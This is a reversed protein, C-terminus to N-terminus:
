RLMSQVRRLWGRIEDAGNRAELYPVTLLPVVREAIARKTKKSRFGATQIDAEVDSDDTVAVRVGLGAEIIDPHLYNELERKATTVGWSGDQRASVEAAAAQYEPKDGDYIHVEPRHLARLYQMNVWDRLTSGGLPLMAIRPDAGLSPLSPDAEALVASARNLFLVDTPGEVCVFVQVQPSWPDPLVGLDHAVRQLVSPGGTVTRGSGSISQEVHRVASVPLLGALAPVHTTLVVQTGVTQSLERLAELVLLQNIPHQSTEPEEVAFVIDSVDQATRRREVEAQFFGLLILRRVGSGRKNIPIDHDGTFSLKFLSDWRPESRFRPALTSALNPDITAVHAVTRTAVALAEEEIRTKIAALEDAVTALANKVAVKLPDQVEADDDTSARDSRFLAYLPLHRGIATWIEKGGEKSLPVARVQLNLDGVSARVARRMDVNSRMDAELDRENVLRKLEPQKLTLLDAAPEATPHLAIAHVDEKLRDGTYTKRIQLHGDPDLLFEAALTTNASDDLVLSDPLDTFICTIAVVEHDQAHVCRDTPDIKCLDHNFFIGLADLISSKGVDNRGVFATLRDLSIRTTGAYSRFNTLEAAILRM